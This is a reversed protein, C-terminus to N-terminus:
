VLECVLDGESAWFSTACPPVDELEKVLIDLRAGHRTLHSTPNPCYSDYGPFYCAIYSIFVTSVRSSPLELCPSPPPPRLRRREREGVV